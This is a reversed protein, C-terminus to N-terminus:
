NDSLMALMLSSKPYNERMADEGISSLMRQVHERWADFYEQGTGADMGIAEGGILDDMVARMLHGKLGTQGGKLFESFVYRLTYDGYYTLERYDPRHADIYDGPASSSAPSSMITEFLREIVPATDLAKYEVAQAYCNQIQPLIYKQTDLADELIKRPFKAEIDLGYYSGDRPIWYEKLTYEGSKGVSFTLASPIHSGGADSLGNGTYTYKQILVMAYVTVTKPIYGSEDPGSSEKALIVHSECVFDSESYTDKERALIAKSVAAELPDAFEQEGGGTGIGVIDFNGGGLEKVCLERFLGKFTGKGSVGDGPAFYEDSATTIDYSMRVVYHYQMDQRTQGETPTGSIVTVKNIKYDEIREAPPVGEEMSSKLWIIAATKGIVQAPEDPKVFFTLGGQQAPPANQASAMKTSVRDNIKILLKEFEELTKSEEWPDAESASEAWDSTYQMSYPEYIGDDLSFTIYEANEILSFLICANIQFPAEHIAGTYYNRTKADTKLNITLMYPRESTQLEFGDYVIGDPFELASIINGVASNNGIYATRHQWLKDAYDSPGQTSKPNAALGICLAIVAALGAAIMWFAPKKYNLVNKIRSKTDGEGFALPIGGVIHHGMSLSLLSTSYEKKVDSGLKKIVAEDCSMEMDRGSLFFALWVLPNFWHICLVFFSALKIVHDFRHIHTQEHLLIYQRETESLSQPLYIKPNMIGMVFPTPLHASLYINETDHVADKLRRKLKFLVLVSYILLAAIGMLWLFTFINDTPPQSSMDSAVPSIVRSGGPVASSHITEPTVYQGPFTQLQDTVRGGMSLLSLASEFSWPCVLRFLAVSWLVYSFSKPAKQLMIRALLIFLIVYGATYSMNLVQLFIQNLM